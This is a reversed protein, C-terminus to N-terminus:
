KEKKNNAYHCLRLLIFYKNNIRPIVRCSFCYNGWFWKIGTKNEGLCHRAGYADTRATRPFIWGTENM